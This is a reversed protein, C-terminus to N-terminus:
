KNNLVPRIPFGCFWSDSSNDIYHHSSHSYFSLHKNFRRGSDNYSVGDSTHYHGRYSIGDLTEKFSGAAPLFITHGNPGEIKYGGIGRITIWKWRCNHILEKFQIESPIRWAIGWKVNAADYSDTLCFTSDIVGEEVLKVKNKNNFIGITNNEPCYSIKSKVEGWAFYEGCEQYSSAGINCTAWKTGSPLGLDVYGYGNVFGDPESIIVKPSSKQPKNTQSQQQTPRTVKGQCFANFGHSLSFIILISLIVKYNMISLINLFQPHKM